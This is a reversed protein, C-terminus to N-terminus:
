DLQRENQPPLFSGDFIDTPQPKTKFSYVLGLQELARAFRAADIEGFGNAAVEPTVIADKITARLRELEVERSSGGIRRLVSGIAADPDRVTDKLGRTFARLFGKAADPKEALLKTNFFIAHGYLEVGRDAMLLVVIDDAPVGKARLIIPSTASSGTIADVEGAALMPERVPIGVDLVTVKSMDVGRLKAAIPWAATAPDAPPAGLRMGELDRLTSVGRSKRGVVAYSPRNGVIYVAKIPATQNQDRHRILNNIDGYGIDYGGSAVRAIPDQPPSAPDITVELGEDKFYGRELALFFPASPGEIRNDLTVKLAVQAEAAALPLLACTVAVALFPFGHRIVRVGM